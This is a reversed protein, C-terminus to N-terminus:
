GNRKRPNNIKSQATIYATMEDEKMFRQYEANPMYAIKREENKTSDTYKVTIMWPSALDFKSVANINKFLISEVGNGTKIQLGNEDVTVKKLRFPLQVLFITIWLLAIGFSNAFNSAIEDGVNKLTIFVFLGSGLMLFPFINKFIFTQPSSKYM